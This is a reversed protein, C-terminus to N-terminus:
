ALAIWVTVGGEGTRPDFSANHHELSAAKKPSRGSAPFWDNWIARYTQPLESVHAHHAFVAYQAPEVTLEVLSQPKAGFRLVQAACVYLFAEESDGPLTIGIPPQELKHAIQQYPGSMFERWQTPIKASDGIRRPVGLGVFLQEGVSRFEPAALLARQESNMVFIEELNLRELAGHKRLEEPTVNFRSRFARSFAEHSAYGAAVAVHLINPSGRSLARAAEALRRGRAYDMVTRGTASVFAHALHFRSVGCAAAVADLSLEGDLNREIVFLAKATLSM